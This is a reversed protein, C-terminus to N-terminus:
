TEPEYGPLQALTGSKCLRFGPEAEIWEDRSAPEGGNDALARAVMVHCDSGEQSEDAAALAEDLAAQADDARDAHFYAISLGAWIRAHYNSYFSLDDDRMLPVMEELLTVADDARDLAILVEATWVRRTPGWEDLELAREFQALADPLVSDDYVSWQHLADGYSSMARVEPFDDLYSFVERMRAIEDAGDAPDRLAAAGLISGYVHRYEENDRLRLADEFLAIGEATRGNGFTETARLVGADAALFRLGWWATVGTLAVVLGGAVVARWAGEARRTRERAPEGSALAAVCLWLPLTLAISDISSLSQTFYAAAGAASGAALPDGGSRLGRRITWLVLACFGALGLAGQDAFQGLPVSHPVDTFTRDHAFADDVRRYHSGEIAFTSPGHGWVPSDMGMAVAERWWFGRARVTDPVLPDFPRVFSFVVIGAGAAAVAGAGLWGLVPARKFRQGAVAGAFVSVGAASGLWGGQSGALLIGLAVLVAGAMAAARAAGTSSTWLALTVPLAIGLFGGVFNSHGITSPVFEFVPIALPDIGVSQAVTYLAVLAASAAFAWAPRRFDGDFADLLLAGAAVVLLAPVFGDYREYAGLLSWGKYDTAAWALVVPVAALAAPVAIGRGAFPGGGLLWEALWLSGALAIGVALLVLKPGAYAGNTVDWLFFLPVAFVLGELVRRRAAALRAAVGPASM